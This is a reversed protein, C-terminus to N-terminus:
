RSVVVRAEFTAAIETIRGEGADEELTAGDSAVEGMHCWLAAGGLTIHERVYEDVVALLSFARDHTVREDATVRFVLVNVDVQVTLERRRQPSVSGEDPIARVATVSISDNYAPWLFGYALDVREVGGAALAASAAEYVADKVALAAAGTSPYIGVGTTM